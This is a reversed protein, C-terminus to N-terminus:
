VVTLPETDARAITVSVETDTERLLRERLASLFGRESSSHECLVVSAGRALHALVDHHRMEGTVYLDSPPGGDFAGSGSGAAVSVSRVPAGSLQTASAALRLHPLGLNAKLESVLEGLPRPEALQVRRARGAGVLPKASLPYLEWAPEEYPHHRAIARAAAPVVREPCVMELRLEPAREFRGQEGVEPNAGEEGFFTGVGQTNFSCRSYNGIVGAGAEALADRLADAHDEPVFVVLKLERAAGPRATVLPEVEGPGVCHALWDNLGDKAADLATHPSYVAFPASAAAFLLTDSSRQYRRKAEFLPPHYAVLCDTRTALAEDVVAPTADIALLVRSVELEAGPARPDVLLGVNDWSEALEPPAIRELASVLRALPLSM